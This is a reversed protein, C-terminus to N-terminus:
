CIFLFYGACCPKLSPKVKWKAPLIEMLIAEQQLWRDATEKVLNRALSCCLNMRTLVVKASTFLHNLYTFSLMVLIQCSHEGPPLITICWLLHLALFWQKQLILFLICHWRNITRTLIRLLIFLSLSYHFNHIDLDGWPNRIEQHMMIGLWNEGKKM